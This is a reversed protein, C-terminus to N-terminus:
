LVSLTVFAVCGFSSVKRANVDVHHHSWAIRHMYPYFAGDALVTGDLPYM